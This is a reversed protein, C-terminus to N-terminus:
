RRRKKQVLEFGEDDIVSEQKDVEMKEDEPQGQEEEEEDDESDSGNNDKQVADPKRGKEFAEKMAEIAAFDGVQCAKWSKVIQQALLFASDDELVVSFEDGMVQTAVDELDEVEPDKTPSSTVLDALVGGLWDRKEASDPGGWENDVALSLAQWNWLHLSVSLEFYAIAKEHLESM